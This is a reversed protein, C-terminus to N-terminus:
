LTKEGSPVGPRHASETREATLAKPEPKNPNPNKLFMSTMNNKYQQNSYFGMRYLFGAM